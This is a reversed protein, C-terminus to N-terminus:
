VTPLDPLSADARVGDSQQRLLWSLLAARSGTVDVGGVEVNTAPDDDRLVRPALAPAATAIRQLTDALLLRGTGEELDGFTYGSVLDVHHVVVERLRQFPLQGLPVSTAGPTREVRAERRDAPFDRPRRHLSSTAASLARALDPAPDHAHSEIGEDRDADDRYVPRLGSTVEGAVFAPSPLADAAALVGDLAEAHRALHSVLHGRTWGICGSPQAVAQDDFQEVTEQLRAAERELLGLDITPYSM